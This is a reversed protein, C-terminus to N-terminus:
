QFDLFSTNKPCGTLVLLSDVLLNFVLFNIYFPSVVIDKYAM